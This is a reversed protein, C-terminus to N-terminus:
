DCISTVGLPRGTELLTKLGSLIGPWGKSVRRLVESDPAFSDHVTTLRIANGQLGVEGGIQEIEFTVRSPSEKQDVPQFTYSLRRPPDSELIQGTWELEGEPSSSTITAGPQWTSENKRGYWYQAIFAPDTLAEWMKEPSASVLTVYVLSEKQNM